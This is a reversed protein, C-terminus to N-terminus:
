KSSFRGYFIFLRQCFPGLTLFNPVVNTASFGSDLFPLANKALTSIIKSTNAQIDNLQQSRVPEFNIKFLSKTNPAPNYSDWKFTQELKAGPRVWIYEEGKLTLDYSNFKPGM